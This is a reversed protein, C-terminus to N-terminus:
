PRCMAVHVIQRWAVEFGDQMGLPGVETIQLMTTHQHLAPPHGILYGSGNSRGSAAAETGSALPNFLESIVNTALVLM